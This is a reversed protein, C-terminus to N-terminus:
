RDSQFNNEEFNLNLHEFYGQGDIIWLMKPDTVNNTLKAGMAYPMAVEDVWSNCQRQLSKQLPYYYMFAVCMEDRQTTGGQFFSRVVVFPLGGHATLRFICPVSGLV